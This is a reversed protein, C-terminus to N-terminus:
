GIFKNVFHRFSCLCMMIFQSSFMQIGDKRRYGLCNVVLLNFVCYMCSFFFLVVIFVSFCVVFFCELIIALFIISAAACFYDFEKCFGVISFGSFSILLQLWALTPLNLLFVSM